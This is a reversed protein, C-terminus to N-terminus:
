GPSIPASSKAVAPCMGVSSWDRMGGVMRVAKGAVDRLIFGCDQVSAYSGDKRQFRYEASWSEAGADIAHHMSDVVRTREDPHIRNTWSEVSPEIEGAAFGFITLFGDNWWLTNASLDWDWVVDSVARAVFKFREESQRLASEVVKRESIDQMTGSERAPRGQDDLIMETIQHVYRVEGNPRIVRHEFKVRRLGAAASKKERHVFALDDPHVRRYFTEADPPSDKRSIGLIRYVEESWVLRHSAFDYEWDGLGAIRQSNELRAHNRTENLHLLRVELMNYVRILVEAFEFPKSVFDKAGAQLARLKHDPQATIVLVPLYGGTEIEKLCEMVQFGDMGPMQLDLLILAYRNKRHLECVEHPDRTSAISDYGAGRLMQELLSINAAQDDVILISAKLIDASSIM